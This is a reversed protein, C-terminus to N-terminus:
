AQDVYLAPLRVAPNGEDDDESLVEEKGKPWEREGIYLPRNCARLLRFPPTSIIKRVEVASAEKLSPNVSGL